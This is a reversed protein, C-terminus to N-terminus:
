TATIKRFDLLVKDGLLKKVSQKALNVSDKKNNLSPPRFDYELSVETSYGKATNETIQKIKKL